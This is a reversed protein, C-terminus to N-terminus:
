FVISATRSALFGRCLFGRWILFDVNSAVAAGVHRIFFFRELRNHESTREVARDVKFYFQHLEQHWFARLLLDRRM